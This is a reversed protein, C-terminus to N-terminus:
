VNVTVAFFEAPAPVGDVRDFETTGKGGLGGPEGVFTTAVAPLAIADTLQVAGMDPPAAVDYVTVGYTPEVACAGIVIVPLGGAVFVITVPRVFPVVYVNVTIAVFPPPLLAGDAADFATM